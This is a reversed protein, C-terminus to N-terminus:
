FIGSLIPFLIEHKSTPEYQNSALGGHPLLRQRLSLTTPFAFTDIPPSSPVDSFRSIDITLDSTDDASQFGRNYRVFHRRGPFINSHRTRLRRQRVFTDITAGSPDESPGFTDNASQFHPRFIPLRTQFVRFRTQRAFTDVSASSPDGFKGFIGVCFEPRAIQRRNQSMIQGFRDCKPRQGASKGGTL